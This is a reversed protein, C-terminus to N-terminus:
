SGMGARITVDILGCDSEGLHKGDKLWRIFVTNLELEEPRRLVAVRFENYELYVPFEVVAETLLENIVILQTHRVNVM